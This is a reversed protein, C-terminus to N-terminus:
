AHAHTHALTTTALMAAPERTSAIRPGGSLPYRLTQRRTHVKIPAMPPRMCSGPTSPETNEGYRPRGCPRFGRTQLGAPKTSRQLRQAWLSPTHIPPHPNTHSSLSRANETHAARITRACGTTQTALNTHHCQMTTCHHYQQASAAGANTFARVRDQHHQPPSPFDRKQVRTVHHHQQAPHTRESWGGPIIHAVM